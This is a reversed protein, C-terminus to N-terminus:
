ANKSSRNRLGAYVLNFHGEILVHLGQTRSGPKNLTLVETCQDLPVLCSQDSFPSFLPSGYSLM